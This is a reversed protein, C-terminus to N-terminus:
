ELAEVYRSRRPSDGGLRILERAAAEGACNGLAAAAPGAFHAGDGANPRIPCSSWNPDRCGDRIAEDQSRYRIRCRSSDFYGCGAAVAEARLFERYRAEDAASCHTFATPKIPPGIWVCPASPRQRLLDRAGAMVVDRRTANCNTGLDNTGLSIVVASPALEALQRFSRFETGVAAGRVSRNPGDCWYQSRRRRLRRGTSDAWDEADSSGVAYRTVRARSGSTGMRMSLTAQLADGYPDALHSDGVTLVSGRVSEYKCRVSEAEPARARPSTRARAIASLSTAASAVTIAIAIPLARSPM